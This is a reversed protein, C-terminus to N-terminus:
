KDSTQLMDNKQFGSQFGIAQPVDDDFDEWGIIEKLFEEVHRLIFPPKFEDPRLIEIMKPQKPQGLNEIYPYVISIMVKGNFLQQYILMGNSKIFPREANGVQESIGSSEQGLSLAVGALNQLDEKTEVKADLGTEKVVDELTTQIMVKTEDKWQQRYTKTNELIKKYQTVKHQINSFDM